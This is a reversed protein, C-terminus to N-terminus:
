KSHVIFVSNYVRHTGTHNIITYMNTHASDPINRPFVATLVWIKRLGEGHAGPVWRGKGRQVPTVSACSRLKPRCEEALVKGM